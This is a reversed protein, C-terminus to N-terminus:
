RDLLTRAADDLAVAEDFEALLARDTTVLVSGTRRAAAALVADFCGLSTATRFRRLGGTLDSATVTTLPSLLTVFEDALAAAEERGRRRARVHTFEQIVEVTTTSRVEGRGIADVLAAAPERLPHDSGVAYVLVTTDLLLM